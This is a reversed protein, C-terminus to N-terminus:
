LLYHDLHDFMILYRDGKNLKEHFHRNEKKYMELMKSNTLHSYKVNAIRDCLKVFLAGEQKLIGDYYKDNAREARNRGKENTVAYIIETVFAGLENWCDNYTCRADEILDHGWCALKYQTEMGKPIFESFDNAIQVTLRLHFEYPLYGDYLHNTERHQKRCWESKELYEKIESM